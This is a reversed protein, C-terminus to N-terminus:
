IALPQAAAWAPVRGEVAQRLAWRLERALHGRLEPRLHRGVRLSRGEGALVVLSNQGALPEVTLWHAAFTARELRSGYAQEVSLSGGVLTLTERDGAHRACVLLAIGVLLLEIGAFALVMSAGMFVFFLAVSLSMACLLGYAAALQRPTVSCNRRLLWQLAKPADPGAALAVERGLSWDSLGGAPRSAAATGCPWPGSLSTATM